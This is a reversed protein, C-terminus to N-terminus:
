FCNLNQRRPADAPPSATYKSGCNTIVQSGVVRFAPSPLYPM